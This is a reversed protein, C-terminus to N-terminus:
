ESFKHRPINLYSSNPLDKIDPATHTDTVGGVPEILFVGRVNEVVQPRATLTGAVSGSTRPEIGPAVLNESFYHTQIINLLATLLLNLQDNAAGYSL